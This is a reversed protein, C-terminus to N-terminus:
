SATEGPVPMSMAARRLTTLVYGRRLAGWDPDLTMNWLAPQIPDAGAQLGRLTRSRTIRRGVCAM